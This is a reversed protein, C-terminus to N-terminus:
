EAGEIEAKAQTEAQMGRDRKRNSDVLRVHGSPSHNGCNCRKGM